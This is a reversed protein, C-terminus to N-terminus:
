EEDEDEDEDADEDEDEDELACGLLGNCLNIAMTKAEEESTMLGGPHEVKWSIDVITAWDEDETKSPDGTSIELSIEERPKWGFYIHLIANGQANEPANAKITWKDEMQQPKHGQLMKNYDEHTITKDWQATAPTTEFTIPPM